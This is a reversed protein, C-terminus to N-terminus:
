ENMRELEETENSLVKYFINMTQAFVLAPIFETVCFYPIMILAFTPMRDDVRAFLM